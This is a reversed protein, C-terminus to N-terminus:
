FDGYKDVEVVNFDSDFARQIPMKINTRHQLRDLLAAFDDRFDRIPIPFSRAFVAPAHGLVGNLHHLPVQRWATVLIAGVDIQRQVRQLHGKCAVM